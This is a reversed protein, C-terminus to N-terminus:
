GTNGGARFSNATWSIVHGLSTSKLFAVVVRGTRLTKFNVPWITPTLPQTLPITAWGWGRNGDVGLKPCLLRRILLKHVALRGSNFNRANASCRCDHRAAGTQLVVVFLGLRLM